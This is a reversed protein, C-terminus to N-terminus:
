GPGAWTGDPNWVDVGRSPRWIGNALVHLSGRVFKYIAPDERAQAQPQYDGPSYGPARHGEPFVEFYNKWFEDPLRSPLCPPLSEVEERQDRRAKKAARRSELARGRLKGWYCKLFAPAAPPEKDKDPNNKRWQKEWVKAPVASPMEAGGPCHRRIVPWLAPPTFDISESPVPFPDSM